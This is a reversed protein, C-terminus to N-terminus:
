RAAGSRCRSDGVVHRHGQSTRDVTSGSFVSYGAAGAEVLAWSDVTMGQLVVGESADIAKLPVSLNLRNAVEDFSGTVGDGASGVPLGSEDGGILKFTDGNLLSRNAEVIYSSEGNNLYFSYMLREAPGAPAVDTLAIVVGFTTADSWVSASQIDLEPRQRRGPTADDPQWADGAEDTLLPCGRAPAAVAPGAVVAIGIAIGVVARM